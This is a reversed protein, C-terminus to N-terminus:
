LNDETSEEGDNKRTKEELAELYAYDEERTRDLDVHFESLLLEKKTQSEMNPDALIGLLHISPYDVKETYNSLGIQLCIPTGGTIGTVPLPDDDSHFMMKRSTISQAMGCMEEGVTIEFSFVLPEHCCEADKGLIDSIRRYTKNAEMFTPFFIEDIPLGDSYLHFTVLNEQFVMPGAAPFAMLGKQSDLENLFDQWEDYQFSQSSTQNGILQKLTYGKFPLVFDRLIYARILANGLGKELTAKDFRM